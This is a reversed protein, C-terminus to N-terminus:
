LETLKGDAPRERNAYGAMWRFKEPTIVAKALGVKWTAEAADAVAALRGSFVTLCAVWLVLFRYRSSM